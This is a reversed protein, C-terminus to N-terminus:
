YNSEEIAQLWINRDEIELARYGAFRDVKIDKKVLSEPNYPFDQVTYKDLTNIYLDGSRPILGTWLRPCRGM